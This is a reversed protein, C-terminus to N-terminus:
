PRKYNWWAGAAYTVMFMDKDFIDREHVYAYEMQPDFIYPKGDEMVIEVWSHPQDTKTMTGSICKAEYGLGRALAWFSAAFNYCNGKATNFMKKADEIEWGTAGFEYASRRLYTFSDRSYEFARRLLDIREADPNKAIIDALIGAVTTDLEVDGCTYRGDVGFTLEGVQANRLVTGDEGVYLLWGDINMFGPDRQLSRAADSWAVANPGHNHDLSAEMLAACATHDVSLDLPMEAEASLTAGTELSRQTLINVVTAFDGRTVTEGPVLSMARQVADEPFLVILCDHLVQGTVPEESKPLGVFIPSFDEMSQSALAAFAKTMEAVTLSDDPRLFGNEDEFLYPVHSTLDPYSKNYYTVDANVPIEEPMVITGGEDLWGAFRWGKIEPFVAAPTSGERVQQSTYEEGAVMFRVTYSPLTPETDTGLLATRCACLLCACVLILLLIFKYRHQM